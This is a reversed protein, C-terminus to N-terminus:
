KFRNDKNRNIKKEKRRQVVPVPLMGPGASSRWAVITVLLEILKTQDWGSISPLLLLMVSVDVVVSIEVADDNDAEPCAVVFASISKITCYPLTLLM